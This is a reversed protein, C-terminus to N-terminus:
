TINSLIICVYNSLNDFSYFREAIIMKAKVVRQVANKLDNCIRQLSKLLHIYILIIKLKKCKNSINTKFTETAKIAQRKPADVVSATLNPLEQLVILVEPNSM